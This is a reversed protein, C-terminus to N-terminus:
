RLTYFYNKTDGSTPSLISFKPVYREAGLSSQKILHVQSHLSIPVKEITHKLSSNIIIYSISSKFLM